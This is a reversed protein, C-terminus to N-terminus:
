KAPSSPGATGPTSASSGAVLADMELQFQEPTMEGSARKTVKNQADVFIWFPYNALGSVEAVENTPDALTPIPWGERQLWAGPPYNPASAAKPM